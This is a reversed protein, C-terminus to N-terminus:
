GVLLGMLSVKLCGIWHKKRGTNLTPELNRHIASRTLVAALMREGRNQAKVATESFWSTWRTIDLSKNATNIVEYYHKRDAQMQAAIPIMTPRGIMRAMAKEILARGIRGNGDEFPHINEFWCHCRAAVELIKRPDSTPETAQNFWDVYQHMEDTVRNAPPTQFHVKMHSRHGWNSAVVQDKTTDWRYAGLTNIFRDHSMLDIHWQCLTAHDLRRAYGQNITVYLDAAGREAPWYTRGPNSLYGLRYLFSAKVAATSLPKGEISSSQVVEQTLHDIIFQKHNEEDLQKFTKTQNTLKDEFDGTFSLAEPKCTTNPWNGKEWAWRKEKPTGAVTKNEPHDPVDSPVAKVKKTPEALKSPANSVQVNYGVPFVCGMAKILRSEVYDIGAGHYIVRWDIAGHERIARAFPRDSGSGSEALHQSVRVQLPNRTKGIYHRGNGLTALYVIGNESIPILQQTNQQMMHSEDCAKM